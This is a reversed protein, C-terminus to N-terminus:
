RAPGAQARRTFVQTPLKRPAPHFGGGQVERSKAVPEPGPCKATRGIAVQNPRFLAGAVAHANAVTQAPSDVLCRISLDTVPM